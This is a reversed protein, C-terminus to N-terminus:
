RDTRHGGGGDRLGLAEVGPKPRSRDSPRSPSRASGVGRGACTISSAATTDAITGMGVVILEADETRYPIVLGYGRGTLAAWEAM